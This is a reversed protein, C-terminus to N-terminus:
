RRLVTALKQFFGMSNVSREMKAPDVEILRQSVIVKDAGGDGSDSKNPLECGNTTWRPIGNLDEAVAGGDLQKVEDEPKQSDRSIDWAMGLKIICDLTRRDNTYGTDRDSYQVSWYPAVIKIRPSSM